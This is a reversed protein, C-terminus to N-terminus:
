KKNSHGIQRIEAFISTITQVVSFITFIILVVVLPENYDIM